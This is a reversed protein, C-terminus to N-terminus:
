RGSGNWLAPGANWVGEPLAQMAAYFDDLSNPPSRMLEICAPHDVGKGTTNM